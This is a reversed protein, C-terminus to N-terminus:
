STSSALCLRFNKINKYTAISQAPAKYIVDDLSAVAAAATCCGGVQWRGQFFHDAGDVTQM